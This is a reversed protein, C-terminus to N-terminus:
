PVRVQIERVGDLTELSGVLQAIDLSDPILLDFSLSSRGAGLDKRYDFALVRAGLSALRSRASSLPEATGDFSLVVNRRTVKKDELVRLTTLALLGLVTVYGSEPYM